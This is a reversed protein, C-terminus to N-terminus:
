IVTTHYINMVLRLWESRDHVMRRAQGVDLCRKKFCDKVTDIWRRRPRGVSRSDACEWDYVRKVIRDNQMRQVSLIGEDITEDMRGDRKDSRM